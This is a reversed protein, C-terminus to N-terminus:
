PPSSALEIEPPGEVEATLRPRRLSARHRLYGKAFIAAIEAVEAPPLDTSSPSVNKEREPDPRTPLSTHPARVATAFLGM